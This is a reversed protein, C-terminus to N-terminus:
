DGSSSNDEPWQIAREFRRAEKNIQELIEAKLREGDKTIPRFFSVATGIIDLQPKTLRLVPDEM